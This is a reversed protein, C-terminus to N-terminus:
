IAVAILQAKYGVEIVSDKTFVRVPTGSLRSFRIIQNKLPKKKSFFWIMKIPAESGIQTKYTAFEM